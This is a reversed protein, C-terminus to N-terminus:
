RDATSALAADDPHLKKRRFLSLTCRRRSTSLGSWEMFRTALKALKAKREQAAFLNPKMASGDLKVRQCEHWPQPLKKL